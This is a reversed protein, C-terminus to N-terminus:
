VARRTTFPVIQITAAYSANVAAASCKRAFSKAKAVEDFGHSFKGTHYGVGTVRFETTVITAVTAKSMAAEQKLQTIYGVPNPIGGHDQLDNELARAIEKPSNFACAIALQESVPAHEKVPPAPVFEQAVPDAAPRANLGLLELFREVYNSAM